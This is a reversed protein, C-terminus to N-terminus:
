RRSCRTAWRAPWCTSPGGAPFNVVFRVPKSPYAQAGALPAALALACATLTHLARRRPFFLAKM